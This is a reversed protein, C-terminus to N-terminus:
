VRVMGPSRPVFERVRDVATVIDINLVDLVQPMAFALGYEPLSDGAFHLGVARKSDRDLWWSGSDGPNSVEGRAPTQAIHVVHRVVRNFGGYPITKVGGVGTIIGETVESARGSKTVVMDIAPDTVGLVPGIDLQNNIWSRDDTLVAVAADIGQNMAHRDLYAITNHFRGGDGYGPQYISLGRPAYASEYLVHWNSLIMPDGTARDTVLGGLTGYSFSWENSISIGGQLPDFLQARAPLQGWHFHLQYDAEIIDVPFGVTREDIVREPSRAAFAEFAPGRPKHRLHVRVTPESTIRQGEREKIRLGVDILSVNPDFLYFAAARPLARAAARFEKLMSSLM